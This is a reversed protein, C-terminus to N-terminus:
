PGHKGGAGQGALKARPNSGGGQGQNVFDGGFAEPIFGDGLASEGARRNIQGIAINMERSGLLRALCRGFMKDSLAIEHQRHDVCLAEAVLQFPLGRAPACEKGMEVAREPHIFHQADMRQRHFTIAHM